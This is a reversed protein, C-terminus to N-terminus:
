VGSTESAFCRERAEGAGCRDGGGGALGDAVAEVSAAVAFEVAGEVLDDDGSAAPVLRCDVVDVPSGLFPLGSAFCGTAELAVEGAVEVPEELVRRSRSSLCLLM